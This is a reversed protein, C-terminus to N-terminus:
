RDEKEKETKRKRRDKDESDRQAAGARRLKIEGQFSALEIRASGSGLTFRFRKRRTDTLTVPFDSEFEGQFTDVLVSADVGEPVVLTVDGNHTALRYQGRDQIPGDFWVDGNVTSADVSASKIRELAIDGNVTEVALEGDANRVTIGENVANLNIHGRAGDLLVAGEVSSLSIFGSGGRVSIEGNVTEASVEGQTGEVTIDTNVGGLNLSMWVPVTIRYDISGSPGRRSHSEVRVTLLSADVEIRDKGSYDAEVRVANRDWTQIAIGGAHNEIELRAGRQVPVTTDAQQVLSVLVATVSPFM